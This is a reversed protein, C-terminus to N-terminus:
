KKNLIELILNNQNKIDNLKKDLIENNEKLEKIHQELKENYDKLIKNEIKYELCKTKEKELEIENNNIINEYKYVKPIF